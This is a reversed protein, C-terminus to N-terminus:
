IIQRPKYTTMKPSVSIRNSVPREQGIFAKEGGNIIYYGGPDYKCEDTSTELSLTCYSSRLMVPILGFPIERTFETIIKPPTNSETNEDDSITFTVNATVILPAAYTWKKSRCESPTTVRKTGDCAQPYLLKAGTFKVSCILEQSQDTTQTSTLVPTNLIITPIHTTILEDYSDLQYRVIGFDRILASITDWQESPKLNDM